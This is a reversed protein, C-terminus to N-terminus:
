AAVKERTVGRGSRGEAGACGVGCAQGRTVGREPGFDQEHVAVLNKRRETLELLREAGYLPRELGPIRARQRRPQLAGRVPSAAKTLPTTRGGPSLLM